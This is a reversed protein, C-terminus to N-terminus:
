VIRENVHKNEQLEDIENTVEKRQNWLYVRQNSGEKEKLEKRGNATLNNMENRGDQRKM